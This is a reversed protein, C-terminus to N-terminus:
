ETIPANAEKADLYAIYLAEHTVRDVEGTVALGRSSQFLRIAEITEGEYFGDIVVHPFGSEAYSIELLFRQVERINEKTDRMNM